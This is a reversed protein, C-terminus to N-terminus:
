SECYPKLELYLRHNIEENRKIYKSCNVKFLSYNLNKYWEYLEDALGSLENIVFGFGYDNIDKVVGESEQSVVIPINMMVAYGMKITMRYKEMPGSGYYTNMIDTQNLYQYLQDMDFTGKIVVNSIHNDIVYKSLLDSGTGYFGLIFRDDNAFADILRKMDEVMVARLTGVYSLRIPDLHQIDRLIVGDPLSELQSVLPFANLRKVYDPLHVTAATAFAAKKALMSRIKELIFNRSYNYDRINISYPVETKLLYDSFLLMTNENWVVIFDYKNKKLINIAFRRYSIYPKLKKIRSDTLAVKFDYQYLNGKFVTNGEGYRNTCIIDYEIMNEDFYQTYLQLSSLARPEAVTLVAVRKSSNVETKL